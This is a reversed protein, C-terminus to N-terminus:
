SHQPLSNVVRALGNIFDKLLDVEFSMIFSDGAYIILVAKHSGDWHSIDYLYGKKSLIEGITKELLDLAINYAIRRKREEAILREEIASYEPLWNFVALLFDAVSEPVSSLKLSEHNENRNVSFHIYRGKNRPFLPISLEIIANHVRVELLERFDNVCYETMSPDMGKRILADRVEVLTCSTDGYLIHKTIFTRIAKDALEYRTSRIKDEISIETLSPPPLLYHSPLIM